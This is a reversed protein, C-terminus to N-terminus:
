QCIGGNELINSIIRYGDVIELKIAKETGDQQLVLEYFLTLLLKEKEREEDLCLNPIVRILPKDGEILTGEDDFCFILDADLENDVSKLFIDELLLVRHTYNPAKLQCLPKNNLSGKYVILYDDISKYIYTNEDTNRFMNKPYTVSAGDIGIVRQVRIYYDNKYHLEILEEM